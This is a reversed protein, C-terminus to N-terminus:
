IGQCSENVNWMIRRCCSSEIRAAKQLITNPLNFYYEGCNFIGCKLLLCCFNCTYTLLYCNEWIQGSYFRNGFLDIFTRQFVIFFLVDEEYEPSGASPTLVWLVVCNLHCLKSLQQWRQVAWMEVKKMTKFSQKQTELSRRIWGRIM